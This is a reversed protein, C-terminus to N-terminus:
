HVLIIPQPARCNKAYDKRKETSKASLLALQSAAHQLVSKPLVSTDIVAGKDGRVHLMVDGDFSLAAELSWDVQLGYPPDVRSKTQAIFSGDSVSLLRVVDIVQDGKRKRWFIQAQEANNVYWQLTAAKGLSLIVGRQTGDAFYQGWKDKASETCDWNAPDEAPDPEILWTCANSQDAQLGELKQLAAPWKEYEFSLRALDLTGEFPKIKRRDNILSLKLTGSKGFLSFLKEPSARFNRDWNEEYQRTLLLQKGADDSLMVVSGKTLRSRKYEPVAIQLIDSSETAGQIQTRNFTLQYETAARSWYSDFSFSGDEELFRTATEYPNNDYLPARCVRTGSYAHAPISACLAAGVLM